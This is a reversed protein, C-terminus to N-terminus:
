WSLAHGHSGLVTTWQIMAAGFEDDALDDEYWRLELRLRNFEDIWHTVFVGADWWDASADTAREFWDVSAGVSWRSDFAYEGYVYFGFADEEFVEGSIATEKKKKAEEAEFEARQFFAEAGLTFAQGTTEDRWKFTADLGFTRQHRDFALIEGSEEEEFERIHPAWLASAGVQLTSEEGLEFLATVRATLAFDDVGRKGIGDFDFGEEHHHGGLDVPVIPHSDGDPSNLLGVSWRLLNAEGLGFWHHLELGTGRLSGGLYEQLVGPKDVMPLEADHIPSLKGFDSNFRGFKLSFTDPLGQDLVGFAEELEVEEEDFHIYVYYALIPDVRGSFGLEVERLVFQNLSNFSDRRDSWGLVFDGLVSIAPNFANDFRSSQSAARIGSRETLRDIQGALARDQSDARESQLEGEVGQLRSELAAIRSVYRQEMAQLQQEYWERPESQAFGQSVVGLALGIGVIARLGMPGQIFFSM